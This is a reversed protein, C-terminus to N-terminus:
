HHIVEVISQRTLVAPLASNTSKRDQGERGQQSGIHVMYANNVTWSM